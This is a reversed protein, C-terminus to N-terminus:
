HDNGYVYGGYREWNETGLLRLGFFQGPDARLADDVDDLAGRVQSLGHDEEVLRPHTAGSIPGLHLSAMAPPFLQSRAPNTLGAIELQYVLLAYGHSQFSTADPQFFCCTRFAGSWFVIPHNALSVRSPTPPTFAM